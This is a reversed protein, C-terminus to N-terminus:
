AALREFLEPEMQRRAIQDVIHRAWARATGPHTRSRNAEREPGPAELWCASWLKHEETGPKPVIARLSVAPDEKIPEMGRIWLAMGKFFPDGFWWPQCVQTQRGVKERAHRHMISNEILRVPIHDAKDFADFFTAAEEVAQWRPLYIGNEKKGDIYLHKSGSNAMVRCVPSAILGDWRDRVVDLANGKIHYSTPKEADKLDVSYAEAGLARLEDVVVMSCHCAVLIRPGSM